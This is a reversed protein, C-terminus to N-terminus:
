KIFIYFSAPSKEGALKKILFIYQYFLMYKKLLRIALIVIITIVNFLFFANIRALFHFEGLFYKFGIVKKM